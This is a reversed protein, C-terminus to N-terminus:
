RPSTQKGGDRVSGASVVLLSSLKLEMVPSLPEPLDFMRSAIHKTRPM